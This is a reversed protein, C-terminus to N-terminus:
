LVATEEWPFGARGFHGYTSTAQYIPQHLNLREAIAEPRFDFTKKLLNTLDMKSGRSKEGMGQAHVHVPQARGMSYVLSVMASSALGQEVLYRATYRAMYAGARDVRSPDKGSISKDGQPILGGYTDVTTKRGSAGSDARFGADIFTGIPNIYIQVGDEGVIPVLLRELLATKVQQEDISVHHSALVTVGTVRGGDMSIQVKGDPKLWSFAPDTKRLDDLRRALNHAYVVAQPLLERTEKTAFGNVVLNDTVGNNVRKMEDSQADVNVFVEMDDKYGIQAYVKKALEGIDFDAVSTVEGGIMMMGHSGLVNVDVRAQRDRRLYEDVIADAIQDCVKDPNGQTVSEVTKRMVDAVIDFGMKITM